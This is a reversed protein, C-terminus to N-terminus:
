KPLYKLYNFKLHDDIEITLQCYLTLLLVVDNQSVFSFWSGACRIFPAFGLHRIVFHRGFIPRPRPQGIGVRSEQRMRPLRSLGRAHDRLLSRTRLGLRLGIDRVFSPSPASVLIQPLSINNYYLLFCHRDRETLCARHRHRNRYRDRREFWNFGDIRISNRYSIAVAGALAAAAVALTQVFSLLWSRLTIIKWLRM